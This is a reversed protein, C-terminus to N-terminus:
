ATHHVQKEEVVHYPLMVTDYPKLTRDFGVPPSKGDKLTGLRAENVAGVVGLAAPITATQMSDRVGTEPITSTPAAGQGMINPSLPATGKNQLSIEM